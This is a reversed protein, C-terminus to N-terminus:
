ELRARQLDSSGSTATLGLRILAVCMELAEARVVGAFHHAEDVIVMGFADGFRDLCRYGSEFTIVTTRAIRRTGDRSRRRSQRISLSADCGVARAGSSDLGRVQLGARSSVRYARRFSAGRSPREGRRRGSAHRSPVHSTDIRLTGRDFTLRISEM